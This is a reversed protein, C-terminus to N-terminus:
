GVDKKTFVDMFMNMGAEISKTQFLYYAAVLLLVFIIFIRINYAMLKKQFASRGNKRQSTFKGKFNVRVYEGREEKDREEILRDVRKEFEEKDPNYFRPVYNFGRPGPQKRFLSNLSSLDL